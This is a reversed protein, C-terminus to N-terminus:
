KIVKRLSPAGADAGGPSHAIGDAGLRGRNSSKGKNATSTSAGWDGGAGKSAPGPSAAATRAFEVAEPTAQVTGIM